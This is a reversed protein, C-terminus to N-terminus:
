VQARQTFLVNAVRGLVNCMLGIKLLRLSLFRAAVLQQKHDLYCSKRQLFFFNERFFRPIEFILNFPTSRRTRKEFFIKKEGFRSIKPVRPNEPVLFRNACTGLELFIKMVRQSFILKKVHPVEM